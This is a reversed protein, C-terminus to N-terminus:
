ESRDRELLSGTSVRSPQAKWFQRLWRRQAAADFRARPAPAKTRYPVLRAVPVADRTVVIEGVSALKKEAEPWKLRIDRVSMRVMTGTAYCTECSAGIKRRLIPEAEVRQGEVHEGHQLPARQWLAEVVRARLSQAVLQEGETTFLGNVV